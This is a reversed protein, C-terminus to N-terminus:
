HRSDKASTRFKIRFDFDHRSLCAAGMALRQLLGPVPGLLHGIRQLRVADFRTVPDAAEHPVVVAMQLKILAHGTHAADEVGQIDAQGRSVQFVDDIM